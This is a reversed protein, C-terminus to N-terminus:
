YLTHMYAHARRLLRAGNDDHKNGPEGRLNPPRLGLLGYAILVSVTIIYPHRSILRKGSNM